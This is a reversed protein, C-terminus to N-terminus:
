FVALLGLGGLLFFKLQTSLQHYERPAQARTLRFIIYLLMVVLVASLGMMAPKFFAPWGLLYPSAIALISLLGIGAGLWRSREVGLMVPITRRGAVRDGEIDELDKVLERLMTVVFAFVMFLLCVRLTSRGLSPNVALLQGVATREALILIGPVGACFVAVLLNGLVPLKKVNSSYVSLVGIALPFIWLLHREGLRYALLQSVLFGGLLMVGYTWMVGDRGIREVPNTDPRNIADIEEDQLDNVLYGSATIALTVIVIEGFKWPTLVTAINEATFAPELVRYYVLWQTLAVVVLNPFRLLRLIPLVPYDSM